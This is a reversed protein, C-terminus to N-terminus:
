FDKNIQWSFSTSFISREEHCEGRNFSCSKASM